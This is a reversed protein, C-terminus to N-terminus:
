PALSLDVDNVSVAGGAEAYSGFGDHYAEAELSVEVQIRQLPWRDLTTDEIVITQEGPNLCSGQNDYHMDALITERPIPDNSCALYVWRGGGYSSGGEPDETITYQVLLSTDAYSGLNFRTGIPEARASPADVGETPATFEVTLAFQTNAPIGGYTRSVTASALRSDEALRPSGDGLKAHVRLLGSEAHAFASGGEEWHVWADDFPPPDALAPWPTLCAGLLCVLVAKRSFM